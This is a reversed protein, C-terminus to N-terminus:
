FRGPRSAGNARKWSALTATNLAPLRAFFPSSRGKAAHVIAPASQVLMEREDFSLGKL